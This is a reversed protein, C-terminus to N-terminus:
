KTSKYTAAVVGVQEIAEMHVQRYEEITPHWTTQLFGLLRKPHIKETCYDVTMGFNENNNWNSGTPVQDYGSKELLDYAQVMHNDQFKKKYYWNSQVVDKPMRKMFVEQHKWLYDSWVWPRGGKKRVEDCFFLFDHWWLDHQRVVVYQNNNKGTEEEDMGLHFFRPTDFIDMVEAILDACVEYYKKTSVCRSYEGLWIDHSAAFNLKPIPELGLERMKSIEKKLRGVSWANNVAIEPHSEYRVGDGLDIVVMNMHNAVMKQLLDDWLKDDLRLDPRYNGLEYGPIDWDGWMNFSLHLLSGWIIDRKPPPFSAGALATSMSAAGITKIFIRRNYGKM